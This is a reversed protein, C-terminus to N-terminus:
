STNEKEAVQIVKYLFLQSPSHLDAYKTAHLIQTKKMVGIEKMLTLVRIHKSTIKPIDM